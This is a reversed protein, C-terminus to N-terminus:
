FILVVGLVFLAILLIATFWNTKISYEPKRKGLNKAKMAMLIVAAGGVGGAVAGALTIIAIFSRAGALFIALPTSCTLLWALNKNIGYDYQLMWKLALGFVLFSTAMALVAFFNGLLVMSKGLMNGLGVSAVQTTGLGTAGVVVFSFLAYVFLPILSGVIIAKKLLKKNEELIARMKPIAFMGFYAFLVVGYPLFLKSLNESLDVTTLNTLNISPLILAIMVVALIVMIASLLLESKGIAELGLYILLAMPVFFVLSFLLQSGGFIAALAEGEGVLYAILAGVTYFVTSFALAVKGPKGLYLEAYGALQHTGKTRLAVEGVYLNLLLVIFGIAIVHIIGIIFGAQAVVYPIGFIGAGIVCGVLIAVAKAFSLDSM